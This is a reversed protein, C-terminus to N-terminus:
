RGTPEATRGIRGLHTFGFGARYKLGYGLTRDFGVHAGWIFSLAFAAQWELLFGIGGLVIPGLTTHAANYLLAGTRPGVLYGLFSLDPALFLAAFLWWSRGTGDYVVCSLLLLAAGELRLVLRPIGSVGPADPLTTM